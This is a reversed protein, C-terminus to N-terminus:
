TASEAELESERSRLAQLFMDPILTESPIARYKPIKDLLRRKYEEKVTRLLELESAWEKPITVGEDGTLKFIGNIEQIIQETETM